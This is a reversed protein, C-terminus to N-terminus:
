TCRAQFPEFGFVMWNLEILTFPNQPLQYGSSVNSNLLKIHPSFWASSKTNHVPPECLITFSHLMTVRTAFHATWLHKHSHTKNKQTHNWLFTTKYIIHFMYQQPESLPSGRWIVNGMTTINGEEWPVNYCYSASDKLYSSKRWIWMIRGTTKTRPGGM